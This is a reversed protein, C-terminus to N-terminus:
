VESMGRWAYQVSNCTEQELVAYVWMRCMDPLIKPSRIATLMETSTDSCVTATMRSSATHRVTLTWQQVETSSSPNTLGFVSHRHKGTLCSMGKASCQCRTANLYWVSQPSPLYAEKYVPEVSSINRIAVYCMLPTLSICCIDEKSSASIM